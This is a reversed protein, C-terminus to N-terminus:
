SQSVKQKSDPIGFCPDGAVKNTRRSSQPLASQQAFYHIDSLFLKSSEKTWDKLHESSKKGMKSCSFYQNSQASMDVELQKM